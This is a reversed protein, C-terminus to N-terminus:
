HIELSVLYPAQISVFLVYDHSEVYVLYSFWIKKTSKIQSILQISRLVDFHM